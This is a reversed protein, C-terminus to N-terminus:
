GASKARKLHILMEIIFVLAIIFEDDEGEQIALGYLDRVALVKRSIKAIEVGNKMITFARRFYQGKIEYDEDEVTSISLKIKFFQKSKIEAYVEGYYIIKFSILFPSYNRKITFVEKGDADYLKVTRIFFSRRARYIIEDDYRIEYTRSFFHKLSITYINFDM